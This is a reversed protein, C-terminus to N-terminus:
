KLFEFSIMDSTAKFFVTISGGTGARLINEPGGAERLELILETLGETLKGESLAIPDNNKSVFVRTPVPIDINGTNRYSITVPIIWGFRTVSPYTFDIQLLQGPDFGSELCDNQVFGGWGLPGVEVEFGLGNGLTDRQGDPNEVIVDYQGVDAGTLDFSAFVTNQDHYEIFHAVINTEANKLWVQIGDYFRLGKIQTTAAGSNGGSSPDISTILPGEGLDVNILSSDTNNYDCDDGERLTQFYAQHDGVTSITFPAFQITDKEGSELNSFKEDSYVDGISLQTSFILSTPADNRIVVQPIITTDIPYPGTLPSLITDIGVNNEFGCDLYVITGPKGPVIPNGGPDTYIKEEALIPNHTYIAIRGGGGSGSCQTPDGGCGGNGGDAHIMGLGEIVDAFILISGGSGGGAHNGGNGGNALISGQVVLSKTILKISGGGHGAPGNGIVNSSGGSGVHAPYYVDGYISNPDGGGVGPAGLGGYSAGGSFSAGLGPGAVISLGDESYAEGRLGFSSGNSGGLLGKASVDISGGSLVKLTDTVQLKLGSLDRLPSSIVGGSTVTIKQLVDENGFSGSKLFELGAGVMLHNSSINLIGGSALHFQGTQPTTHSFTPMDLIGGAGVEFIGQTRLQIQEASNLGIQTFLTLKGKDAVTILDFNSLATLLPASGIALKGNNKVLVKGYAETSSKLFITGAAGAYKQTGGFAQINDEPLSLEDYNIAIRGGGGAGSPYFNITTGEGGNANISGSGALTGTEIKISGGSGGGGIVSNTAVALGKASITGNVILNQSNILIKGGGSAGKRNCGGCPSGGGGSGLFVPNEILGYGESPIIDTRGAGGEGGHTGGAGGWGPNIYNIGPGAGAVINGTEDYTEGYADFAGDYGGRLGKGDTNISGGAQIELQDAGLSLGPLYRDSHTIMGGSVVTLNNLHDDNGFTGDKILTMAVLATGSLIDLTAGQTLNITGSTFSAQNFSGVSITSNSYINFTSAGSMQFNDSQPLSLDTYTNLTSSVLNIADVNVTTTAQFTCSSGNIIALDSGSPNNSTLISQDGLILNSNNTIEITGVVTVETTAPAAIRMAGRDKVLITQYTGSAQDSRIDAYGPANTGNNDIILRGNAQANDKLYITGAAGPHTLKGGFAQINGEPLSLEDYYIAIRGGGGAGSPYVNITTGEGGNASIIGSGALSGTEIKIGGGSGGGGITQTSTTVGGNATISGALLISQATIKVLGGGAAGTRNCGGCPSGGGGSGVQNPNEINGYNPGPLINFRPKGGEGGYSGGAGGWGPNITNIGPDAGPVVHGNADFTEGYSGTTGAFGGRLGRSNVNIRGGLRIDLINVDLSLGPLFRSSHLVSGGSEIVMSDTVIISANVFLSGGSRVIVKEFTTDASITFSSSVELTQALSSRAMSLILISVCLILITTFRM